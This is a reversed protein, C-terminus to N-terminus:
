GSRQTSWNFVGDLHSTSPDSGPAQDRPVLSFPAAEGSNLPREAGQASRQDLDSSWSRGTQLHRDRENIASLRHPM